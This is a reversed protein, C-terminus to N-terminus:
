VVDPLVMIDFVERVRLLFLLAHRLKIFSVVLVAHIIDPLAEHALEICSDDRIVPNQIM